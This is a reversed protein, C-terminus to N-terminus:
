YFINLIMDGIDKNGFTPDGQKGEIHYITNLTEVIGRKKDVDVVMSSRMHYGIPWRGTPDEAVTGSMVYVKDTKLEPQIEQAKDIPTSLTHMQWRTITGGDKKM